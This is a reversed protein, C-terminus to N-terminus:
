AGGALLQPLSSDCFLGHWCLTERAKTRFRLKIIHRLYTKHKMTCKRKAMKATKKKERSKIELQSTQSNQGQFKILSKREKKREKEKASIKNSSNQNM